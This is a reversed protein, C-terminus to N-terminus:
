NLLGSGMGGVWEALSPRCKSIVIEHGKSIVIEDQNTIIVGVLDNILV